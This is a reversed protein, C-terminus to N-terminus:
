EHHIHHTSSKLGFSVATLVELDLRLSRPEFASEAVQSSLPQPYTVADKQAQKRVQSSSM